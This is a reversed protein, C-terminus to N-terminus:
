NRAAFYSNHKHLLYSYM